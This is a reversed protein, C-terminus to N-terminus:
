RALRKLTEEVFMVTQVNVGDGDTLEGSVIIQLANMCCSRQFEIIAIEACLRQKFESAPLSAILTNLEESM